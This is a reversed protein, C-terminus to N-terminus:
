YSKKEGLAKVENKYEKIKDSNVTNRIELTLNDYDKGSPNAGGTEHTKGDELTIKVHSSGGDMVDNDTRDEVDFVKMNKEIYTALKDYEDVSITYTKVYDEHYSNKLTVTGDKEITITYKACDLMTGYNSSFSYEIKVIKSTLKTKTRMLYLVTATIAGVIVMIIGVILLKKDEM